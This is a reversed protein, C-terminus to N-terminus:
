TRYALGTTWITDRTVMWCHDVLYKNVIALKEYVGAKSAATLRIITKFYSSLPM